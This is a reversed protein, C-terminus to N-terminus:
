AGIGIPRDTGPDIEGTAGPESDTDGDGAGLDFRGVMEGNLIKEFVAGTGKEQHAHGNEDSRQDFFRNKAPVEIREERGSASANGTTETEIGSGGHLGARAGANDDGAHEETKEMSRLKAPGPREDGNEGDDANNESKYAGASAGDEGAVKKVEAQEETSLEPAPRTLIDFVM